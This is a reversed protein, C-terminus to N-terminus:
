KRQHVIASVPLTWGDSFKVKAKLIVQKSTPPMQSTVQYLPYDYAIEYTNKDVKKFYGVSRQTVTYKKGTEDLLDFSSSTTLKPTQWSSLWNQPNYKVLVKLRKAFRITSPNNTTLDKTDGPSSTDVSTSQLVLRPAPSSHGKQGMWIGFAILGFAPAALITLEKAQLKRM